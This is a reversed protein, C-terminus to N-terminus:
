AHDFFLNVVFCILIIDCNVHKIQFDYYIIYIKHYTCIGTKGNYQDIIDFIIWSIETRFRCFINNPVIM